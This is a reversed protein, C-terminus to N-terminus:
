EPSVRRRKQIKGAEEVNSYTAEYCKDFFDIFVTEDKEVDSGTLSKLLAAYEKKFETKVFVPPFGGRMVPFNGLLRAMIFNDKQFCKMEAFLKHVLFYTKVADTRTEPIGISNIKLALENYVNKDASTNNEPCIQVALRCVDEEELKRGGEALERVFVSAFYHAEAQKYDKLSKCSSTLRERVLFDTETLSLSNGEFAISTYTWLVGLMQKLNEQIDRDFESFYTKKVM